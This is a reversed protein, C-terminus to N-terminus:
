VKKSSETDILECIYWQVITIHIGLEELYVHIALQKSLWNSKVIKSTTKVTPGTRSVRTKDHVEPFVGHSKLRELVIALTPGQIDSVNKMVLQKSLQNSMGIKPRLQIALQKSLWDFLDTRGDAGLKDDTMPTMSPTIYNVMKDLDTSAVWSTCERM